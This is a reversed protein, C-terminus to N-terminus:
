FHTMIGKFVAFKEYKHNLTEIWKKKSKLLKSLHNNQVKSNSKLCNDKVYKVAAKLNLLFKFYSHKYCRYISIRSNM